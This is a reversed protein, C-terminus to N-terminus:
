AFTIAGSIVKEGSPLVVVLYFTPTGTDTIDIDIDGDAESQLLFIKDATFEVLINGDTGLAVGGTPATTSVGDGAASDSLYAHVVGITALDTGDPQELQIAVNIVNTAEAGVTITAGGISVAKTGQISTWVNGGQSVSFEETDTAFYTIGAPANGPRNAATGALDTGYNSVAIGEAM